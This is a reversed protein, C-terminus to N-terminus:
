EVVKHEASSVQISGEDLQYRIADWGAFRNLEPHIIHAHWGGFQAFDAGLQMDSIGEPKTVNVGSGLDGREATFLTGNNSRHEIAKGDLTARM